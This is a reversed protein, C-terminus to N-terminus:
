YVVVGHPFIVPINTQMCSDFSQECMRVKDANGTFIVACSAAAQVCRAQRSPPGPPPPIKWEKPARKGEDLVTGTPFELVRGNNKSTCIPATKGSSSLAVIGVVCLFGVAIVDAVFPEPGDAMAIGGAIIFPSAGSGSDCSPDKRGSAPPPNWTAM